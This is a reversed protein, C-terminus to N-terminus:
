SRWRVGGDQEEPSCRLPGQALRSAVGVDECFINILRNPCTITYAVINSDCTCRIHCHGGAAASPQHARWVAGSLGCLARHLEVVDVGLSDVTSVRETDIALGEAAGEIRRPTALHHVPPPRAGCLQTHPKHRASRCPSRLRTQDAAPSTTISPCTHPSLTCTKQTAGLRQPGRPIPGASLRDTKRQASLMRPSAPKIRGIDEAASGSAIVLTQLTQHAPAARGPPYGPPLEQPKRLIPRSLIM